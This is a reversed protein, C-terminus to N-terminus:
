QFIVYTYNLYTEILLGIEGSPDPLGLEPLEEGESSESLSDEDASDVVGAGAGATCAGAGAGAGVCREEHDRDM